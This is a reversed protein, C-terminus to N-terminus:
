EGLSVAPHGYMSFHALYVEPDGDWEFARIEEATRRGTPGRLLEFDPARVTAQPEEKGAPWQEDSAIVLLTPLGETKIRSGLRRVYTYTAATVGGSDRAGPSDIAGRLDHEHTVLDGLLMGGIAPHLHEIAGALQTAHNRFEELIEDVPTNRRAEIQAATWEESGAETVNGTAVDGAVGAFHAILDRVSWEPCAPVMTTLQDEPLSEILEAVREVSTQYATTYDLM